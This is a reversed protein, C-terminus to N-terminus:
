KSGRGLQGCCPNSHIRGQKKRKKRGGKRGGKRGERKEERREEKTEKKVEENEIKERDTRMKKSLKNSDIEHLFSEHKKEQEEDQRGNIIKTNAKEEGM